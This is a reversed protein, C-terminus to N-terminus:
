EHIILEGNGEINLTGDLTFTGNHVNYQHGSEITLIDGSDVKTRVGAIVELRLWRGEKKRFLEGTNQIFVSSEPAALLEVAKEAPPQRPDYSGTFVAAGNEFQLGEVEFFNQIRM